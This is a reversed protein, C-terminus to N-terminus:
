ELSALRSKISNLLDEIKSIDKFIEDLVNEVKFQEVIELLEETTLDKLNRDGIDITIKRKQEM